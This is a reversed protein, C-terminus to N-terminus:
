KKTSTVNKNSKILHIIDPYILYIFFIASAGLILKGIICYGNCYYDDGFGFLCSACGLLVMLLYDVFLITPLVIVLNRVLSTKMIKKKVFIIFKREYHM